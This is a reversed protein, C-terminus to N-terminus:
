YKRVDEQSKTHQRVGKLHTNNTRLALLLLRKMDMCVELRPADSRETEKTLPDSLNARSPLWTMSYEGRRLGQRMCALDIRLRKETPLKTTVINKSTGESDGLLRIELWTGTLEFWLQQLWMATDRGEDMSLVEATNTSRCARKVKRSEWYIWSAVEESKEDTLAFLRGGQTGRESPGASDCFVSLLKAGQRFRLSYQEQKIYRLVNNVKRMDWNTPNTFTRGLMSCEVAVDPRFSSAVYGVCGACSRYDVAASPSLPADDPGTPEAGLVLAAIYEAGDVRVEFTGDALYVTSYRLGKYHFNEEERSGVLLEESVQDMTAHFARTGGGLTDDVHLALVGIVTSEDLLRFVGEDSVDSNFGCSNVVQCLKDYWAKPASVLGYVPKKLRWVVGPKVKDPPPQLIVQRDRTLCQGQLFASMYDWSNPKWQKEVLVQTVLRQSPTSAVPSGKSVNNKEDDEFGRAVLRAKHRKSGDENTKITLVWRTSILNGSAIVDNL